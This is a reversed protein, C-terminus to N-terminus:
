RHGDRDRYTEDRKVSSVGYLAIYEGYIHQFFETEEKGIHIGLSDNLLDHYRPISLLQNRLQYALRYPRKLWWDRVWHLPKRVLDASYKSPDLPNALPKLVEPAFGIAEELNADDRIDYHTKLSSLVEQIHDKADLRQHLTEAERLDRQLQRLADRLGEFENRIQTVCLSLDDNERLKNLFVSVIPPLAIATPECDKYAEAVNTKFAEAVVQCVGQQITPSLQRAIAEFHPLRRCSPFFPLRMHDSVRWYVFTRLHSVGDIVGGSGFFGINDVLYGGLTGIANKSLEKIRDRLRPNFLTGEYEKQLGDSVVESIGRWLSREDGQADSIAPAGLFRAVVNAIDRAFEGRTRDLPRALFDDYWPTEVSTLFEMFESSIKSSFPSPDITKVIGAKTLHNRLELSSADPPLESELVYLEDYLAVADLLTSLHFLREENTPPWRHSGEQYHPFAGSFEDLYSALGCPDLKRIYAVYEEGIPVRELLRSAECLMTQDILVANYEPKM